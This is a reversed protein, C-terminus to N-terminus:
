IDSKSRSHSSYFKSEEQIISPIEVKRPMTYKEIDIQTFNNRQLLKGRILETLEQSGKEEMKGHTSSTSSSARRQSSVSKASGRRNNSNIPTGRNLTVYQAGYAGAIAQKNVRGSFCRFVYHRFTKHLFCYLIPNTACHMHGVLLTYSLVDIDSVDDPRFDLYTSFIFYPTWCIIFVVAIAICLKALRRRNLTLNRLSIERESYTRCTRRSTPRDASLKRDPVWLKKGMLLYAVLLTTGPIIFILILLIIDYIQRHLNKGWNESCFSVDEGIIIETTMTRVFLLPIALLFSILWISILVIRVYKTSRVHRYKVPHRIALCRDMSMSTITLISAFIAVGQLYPVLKCLADGYIWLQYIKEAVTMPICIFAILLDSIALNLLFNNTVSWMRRNPIIVLLVTLNGIIATLLIPVYLSILAITNPQNLTILTEKWAEIIGNVESLSLDTNNLDHAWFTTSEEDLVSEDVNFIMTNNGMM